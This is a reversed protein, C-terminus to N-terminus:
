ASKMTAGAQASLRFRPRKRLCFGVGGNVRWEACSDMRMGDFSSNLVFEVRKM